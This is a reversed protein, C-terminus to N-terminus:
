SKPWSKVGEKVRAARRRTEDAKEAPSLRAAIEPECWCKKSPAHEARHREDRRREGPQYKRLADGLGALPNAKPREAPPEDNEGCVYDCLTDWYAIADRSELRDYETTAISNAAVDRLRRGAGVLRAVQSQLTRTRHTSKRGVVNAPM